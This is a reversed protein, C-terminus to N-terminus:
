PLAFFEFKLGLLFMLAVVLIGAWLYVVYFAWRHVAEYRQDNWFIAAREDDPLANRRDRWSRYASRIVAGLFLGIGIGIGSAM